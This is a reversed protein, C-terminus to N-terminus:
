LGLFSNALLFPRKRFLLALPFLLLSRLSLRSINAIPRDTKRERAVKLEDSRCTFILVSCELALVRGGLDFTGEALAQPEIAFLMRSEVGTLCDLELAGLLEGITAPHLRFSIASEQAFHVVGGSKTAEIQQQGIASHFHMEDMGPGLVRDLHAGLRNKTLAGPAMDKDSVIAGTLTGAQLNVDITLRDGDVDM